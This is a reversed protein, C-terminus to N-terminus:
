GNPMSVVGSTARYFPLLHETLAPNVRCVRQAILAKLTVRPDLLLLLELVPRLPLSCRWGEALSGLLSNLTRGNFSEAYEGLGIAGDEGVLEILRLIANTTSSSEFVAAVLAVIPPVIMGDDDNRAFKRNEEM